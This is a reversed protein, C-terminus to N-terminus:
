KKMWTDKEDFLLSKCAYYIIETDKRPIDRYDRPLRLGTNLLEEQISPFMIFKHLHKQEIRKFWNTVSATNKWRNIHGKFPCHRVSIIAEWTFIMAFM